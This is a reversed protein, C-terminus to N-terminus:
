TPNAYYIHSGKPIAISLSDVLVVQIALINMIFYYDVLSQDKNLYHLSKSRDSENAATHGIKLLKLNPNIFSGTSIQCSPPLPLQNHQQKRYKFFFPIYTVKSSTDVMSAYDQCNQIPSLNNYPHLHTPDYEPRGMYGQEM